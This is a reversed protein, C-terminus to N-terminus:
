KDPSKLNLPRCLIELLILIKSKADLVLNKQIKLELRFILMVVCIVRKWIAMLLVWLVCLLAFKKVYEAVEFPSSMDPDSVIEMLPVGSRNLDILSCKPDQDHISKGADQELHIREINIIKKEGDELSIEVHGGSVIPDLYQSIQYGQPLDAYFYNKRDFISKKNITANIGLGTKIALEVAKKNITPLMGPM